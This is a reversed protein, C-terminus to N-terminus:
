HDSFKLGRLMCIHMLKHDVTLTLSVQSVSEEFKDLKEGGPKPNKNCWVGDASSSLSFLVNFEGLLGTSVARSAWIPLQSRIERHLCEGDRMVLWAKGSVTTGGDRERSNEVARIPIPAPKYGSGSHDLQKMVGRHVFSSFIGHSTRYSSNTRILTRICTQVRRPPWTTDLIYLAYFEVERCSTVICTYRTEGWSVM